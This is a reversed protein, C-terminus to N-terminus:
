SSTLAHSCLELILLRAWIINMLDLIQINPLRLKESQLQGLNSEERLNSKGTINKQM